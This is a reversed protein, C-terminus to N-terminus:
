RIGKRTNDRLLLPYGAVLRQSIRGVKKSLLGKAADIGAGALQTTLDFGTMGVSGSADMVGGKVADLILAEPANIGAMGDRSDFVTINVPIISTGLKINKIELNLRQNSFGALGYVLHGKPIVQGSIVLSDLLRLEVVSGQRAKMSSHIVAPVARFLSDPVEDKGPKKVLAGALEPNQLALLKDMMTGLQEMEQDSGVGSQMSKMLQELRDVDKSVVASGSSAGSVGAGGLAPQYVSTAVYPSSLQANIASIKETIKRTQENERSGFGLKEAATSLYATDSHASDLRAKDYYAMKDALDEGGLKADPLSTNLGAKPLLKAKEKKDWYYYGYGMLGLLLVILPILLLQQTKSLTIKLRKNKRQESMFKKNNKIQKYISYNGTGAGPLLGRLGRLAASTVSAMVSFWFGSDKFEFLGCMAEARSPDAFCCWSSPAGSGCKIEFGKEEYDGRM